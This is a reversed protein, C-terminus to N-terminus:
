KDTLAAVGPLTKGELFELSAGGGTSVHDIRDALRFKNVAAVSDGTFDALENGLGIVKGGYRISLYSIAGSDDNDDAGGYMVNPDGPAAAAVGVGSSCANPSQTSHLRQTATQGVPMSMRSPSCYSHMAQAAQM